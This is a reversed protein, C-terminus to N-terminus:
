PARPEGDDQRLRGLLQSFTAQASPPSAPAAAQPLMTHLTRISQATVGLVLWLRDDGSGVEVTVIRQGHSLPLQSVTRMAGTAAAAGIPSRRVLWLALPIMALVAIFWLVPTLFDNM